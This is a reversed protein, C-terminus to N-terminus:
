KMLVAKGALVKGGAELRYIYLGSALPLGQDSRGDWKVSHEGAPKYGEFLACVEQGLLNYVKLSVKGSQSLNFKFTTEDNFPNPYNPQLSVKLPLKPLNWNERVGSIPNCTFKVEYATGAPVSPLGQYWVYMLVFNEMVVVTNCTHSIVAPNDAKFPLLVTPHRNGWKSTYGPSGERNMVIRVTVTDRSFGPSHLIEQSYLSGPIMGANLDLRVNLAPDGYLASGDLDPPNSAGPTNNYQDFMLNQNALFFAEPWSYMGQRIFFAKVGGHQHSTSGEPIVYGTMMYAGGTHIWAPAMSSMSQIKGVYCNGQAFYIKPNVSNANINGGSYPDGYLQGSSSIFFGESGSTPYHLQWQNHNGHGSTVFIDVPDFNFMEIGENIMTILTDTRDTPGDNYTTTGLSSLTKVSYQNYTGESTAIGQPFYSLDCCTSGGLVTKVSFGSATSLRMADDANYGTIIGWIADGYIDPDLGRTIPWIEQVFNASATLAECVFAIHTPQYMYLFSWVESVSANWTFVQGMYRSLLTDVVAAWGANQYTSNKVVVAYKMPGVPLSEITFHDDSVDYSINDGADFVVVKILAEDSPTFPVEWSYSQFSGELVDILIWSMGGDISYYISDGLIGIDDDADWHITYWGGSNWIEGGNPSVVEVTPPISDPLVTFVDDSEDSATNYGYDWVTVKIKCNPSPINSVLWDYQQPNGSQGCFGVWNTGGETSYYLSDSIIAINDDALWEITHTEGVVWEEGGNPALLTVTPPIPDSYIIEIWDIGIDCIHSAEGTTNRGAFVLTATQGAWDSIDVNHEEWPYAQASATEFLLHYIGNQEIWVSGGDQEGWGSITMWFSLSDTEPPFDIEQMLQEWNDDPTPSTTAYAPYIYINAYYDGEPNGPGLYISTIHPGTTEWGEFDGTEFGPNAIQAYANTAFFTFPIILIISICSWRFLTIFVNRM